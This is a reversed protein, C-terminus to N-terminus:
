AASGTAKAIAAIAAQAIAQSSGNGHAYRQLTAQFHADNTVLELAASMAELEWTVPTRSTSMAGRLHQLNVQPTHKTEQQQSM